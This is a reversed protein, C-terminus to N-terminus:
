QDGGVLKELEIRRYREGIIASELDSLGEESLKALLGGWMDFHAKIEIESIAM